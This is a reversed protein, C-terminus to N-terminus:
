VDTKAQEKEAVFMENNLSVLAACYVKASTNFIVPVAEKKDAGFIREM